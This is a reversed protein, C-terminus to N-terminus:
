QKVKKEVKEGEFWTIPGNAAKAHRMKSSCSGRLADVAKVARAQNLM